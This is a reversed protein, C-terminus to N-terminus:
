QEGQTKVFGDIASRYMSSGSEAWTQADLMKKLDVAREIAATMHATMKLLQGAAMIPAFFQGAVELGASGIAIAAKMIAENRKMEKIADMIATQGGEALLGAKVQKKWAEREKEIQDLIDDAETIMEKDRQAALQEEIEKIQKEAEALKEQAKDAGAQMTEIISAAKDLADTATQSDGDQVTGTVGSAAAPANLLLMLLLKGAAKKREDPTGNLLKDGDPSKGFGKAAAQLQTSVATLSTDIQTSLDTGVKDLGASAASFATNICDALATGIQDATVDKGDARDKILTGIDVVSQAGATVATTIDVDFDSSDQTFSSAVGNAIDGLLGPVADVIKSALDKADKALLMSSALQLGDSALQGLNGLDTALQANLTQGGV